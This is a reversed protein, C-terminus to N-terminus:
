AVQVFQTFSDQWAVPARREQSSEWAVWSERFSEVSDFRTLAIRTAITGWSLANIQDIVTVAQPNLTQTNM